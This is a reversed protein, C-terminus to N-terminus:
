GSDVLQAVTQVKEQFHESLAPYDTRWHPQAVIAQAAQRAMDLVQRDRILDALVFDPLGSQKTGLYEGPGRLELDREAIWFGDDSDVLIGLRELTEPTRSDSVLVCTSAHAGRGVRGRLQHLQALGFRDANMIAMVTANAVDVGVEIVTTSVLIDLQHAAFASMVADKEDPRLKGHLLGLRFEAFVSTSLHEYETTAAKAALSESEEILPFIIYGQRGQLIEHRFLGHVQAMQRVHLLQTRIPQRGPPREDLVSVDLDGHLTLALTRPIPTATMTLMEPNDGKAKLQMRQRVGFRHQEDVVVIGLQAFEVDDELLAHTGVALHIQGNRLGQQVDRRERVGAKGTVLGVRLGLPMLWSVFRRYHQEALVETPAMLAGQFGNDLGVLLTLLALVTKGSGVDGQLLRYMPEPQALDALIEEFVRTQAPTLTFPLAALMQDCYGQARKQLALGQRCQKYETRQLGLRLQLWFLEDFVLRQRARDAEALTDPFHIQQLAQGLPMLALRQQWPQPLPDDLAPLFTELAHFIARRLSKLPLGEVLPYVPVIRGAHLSNVPDDGTDQYSLVEVTPRDMAPRHKYADWKVRGALMVETGKPYRTKYSEMLARNGKGVFWSAALLGTPDSVTLTVIGLNNRTTYAQVSQVTAIVSVDQGEKLAAIPIRNQYDLYRRPYYNVLDTINEIGATRLRQALHPGIGKIFQLDAPPNHTNSSAHLQTSLSRPSNQKKWFIEAAQRWTEVGHLTHMRQSLDDSAYRRSRQVLKELSPVDDPLTVDFLGTHLLGGLTANLFASFVSRRGQVDVFRHRREVDLAQGLDGLV